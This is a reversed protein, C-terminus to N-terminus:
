VASSGLYNELLGDPSFKREERNETRGPGDWEGYAIKTMWDGETLMIYM